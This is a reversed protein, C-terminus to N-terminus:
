GQEPYPRPQTLRVLHDCPYPVDTLDAIPSVGVEGGLAAVHRVVGAGILLGRLLSEVKHAGPEDRLLAITASADLVVGLRPAEM